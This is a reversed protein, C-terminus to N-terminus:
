PALLSFPYEPINRLLWYVLIFALLMWILTACHIKKYPM